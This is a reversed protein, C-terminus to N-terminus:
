IHTKSQIRHRQLTAAASSSIIVVGDDAAPIQAFGSASETLSSSSDSSHSRMGLPMTKLGTADSPVGIPLGVLDKEGLLFLFSCIFVSSV